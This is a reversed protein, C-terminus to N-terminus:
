MHYIMRQVTPKALTTDPLKISPKYICVSYKYLEICNHIHICICIHICECKVFSITRLLSPFLPSAYSIDRHINVYVISRRNFVVIRMCVYTYIYIYICKFTTFWISCLLSRFLATAGGLHRHIYAYVENLCDFQITCIYICIQNVIYLHICIFMYICVCTYMYVYKSYIDIHIPTYIRVSFKQLWICNHVYTYIHIYVYIYIYIYIYVHIYVYIYTYIYIHIYTYM